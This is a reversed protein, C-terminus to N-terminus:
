DHRALCVAADVPTRVPSADAIQLYGSSTMAPGALFLMTRNRNRNSIRNRIVPVQIGCVIWGEGGAGTARPQGDDYLMVAGLGAGARGPVGATAQDVQTVTNWGLETRRASIPLRFTPLGM